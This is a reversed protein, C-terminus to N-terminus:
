EAGADRPAPPKPPDLVFHPALRRLSRPGIGRVRLLDTPKRIRGGLRARLEVIAQARKPGIGPLHRIQEASAQNLILRGDPTLPPPGADGDPHPHALGVPARARPSARELTAPGLDAALWAGDLASGAARVAALPQRAALTSAAGIGALALMGAAMALGRAVVPAWASGRIRARLARLGCAAPAGDAGGAAEGPAIADGTTRPSPESVLDM